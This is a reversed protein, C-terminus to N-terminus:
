PNFGISRAPKSLEPKGKGSRTPVPELTVIIRYIQPFIEAGGIEVFEFVPRYNVELDAGEVCHIGAAKVINGIAIIKIIPFAVACAAESLEANITIGVRRISLNVKELSISSDGVETAGRNIKGLADNVCVIQRKYFRPGGDSEGDM